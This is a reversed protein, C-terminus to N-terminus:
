SPPAPTLQALQRDAVEAARDYYEATEIAAAARTRYLAALRRAAHANHALAEALTFYKGNLAVGVADDAVAIPGILMPVDM